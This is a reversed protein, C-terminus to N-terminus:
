VMSDAEPLVASDVKFHGALQVNPITSLLPLSAFIPSFDRFLCLFYAYSRDDDFLLCKRPSVTGAAGGVVHYKYEGGEQEQAKNKDRVARYVKDWNEGGSVRVYASKKKALSLFCPQDSLDAAISGDLKSEDCDTIGTPAYPTYRNMNLLLSDKKQSAGAYHHGSNKVSIELRHNKAFQIAAVVDSAVVPFLVKPPLNLSPNCADNLFSTPNAARFDEISSDEVTTSFAVDQLWQVATENSHGNVSPRPYCNEWGCFLHPLCLGSTKDILQHNTRESYSFDTFEEFCDKM